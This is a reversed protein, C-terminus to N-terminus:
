APGLIPPPPMVNPKIIDATGILKKAIFDDIIAAVSKSVLTEYKIEAAPDYAFHVHDQHDPRWDRTTKVKQYAWGGTRLLVDIAKAQELYLGDTRCRHIVEHRHVLVCAYCSECKGDHCPLTSDFKCWYDEEQQLATSYLADELALIPDDTQGEAVPESTM